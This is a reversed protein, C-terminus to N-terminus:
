SAHEGDRDEFRDREQMSAVTFGQKVIQTFIFLLKRTRRGLHFQLLLSAVGILLQLMGYLIAVSLAAPLLHAM